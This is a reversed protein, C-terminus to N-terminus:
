FARSVPIGMATKRPFKTRFSLNVQGPSMSADAEVTFPFARGAAHIVIHKPQQFQVHDNANLVVRNTLSLAESPCKGAKMIVM